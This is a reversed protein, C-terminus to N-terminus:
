FVYDTRNKNEKEKTKNDSLTEIIGNKAIQYITEYKEKKYSNTDKYYNNDNRNVKIKLNKDIKATALGVGDNYAIIKEDIIKGSPTY